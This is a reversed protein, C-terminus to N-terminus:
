SRGEASREEVDAVQAPDGPHEGVIVDEPGPTAAVGTPQARRAEHTPPSPVNGAADRTKDRDQTM